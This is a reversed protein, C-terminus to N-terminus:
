LGTDTYMKYNKVSHDLVCKIYGLEELRDIIALRKWSDGLGLLKEVRVHPTKDFQRKMRKMQDIMDRQCDGSHIYSHFDEYKYM